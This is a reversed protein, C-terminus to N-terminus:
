KETQTREIGVGHPKPREHRSDRGNSTDWRKEASFHEGRYHANERARVAARGYIM